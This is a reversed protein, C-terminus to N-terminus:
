TNSLLLAWIPLFLYQNASQTVITLPTTIFVFMAKAITAVGQVFVLPIDLPSGVVQTQRFSSEIDKSQAQLEEAQSLASLNDIQQNAGSQTNVDSTWGFAGLLVASFALLGIIAQTISVM